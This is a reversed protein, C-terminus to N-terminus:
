REPLMEWIEPGTKGEFKPLQEKWWQIEQHLAPSSKKELKSLVHLARKIWKKDLKIEEGTYDENVVSELLPQAEIALKKIQQRIKNDKMLQSMIEPAHQYAQDIYIDGKPSTVM